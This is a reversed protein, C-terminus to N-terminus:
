AVLSAIYMIKRGHVDSLKSMMPIGFLYFLVYASFIWSIERGHLVMTKEIAPIAPGVVSIDLAGMLVGFFLLTLIQRNKKTETKDEMKM